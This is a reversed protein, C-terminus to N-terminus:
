LSFLYYMKKNSINNFFVRYKYAVINKGYIDLKGFSRVPFVLNILILVSLCCIINFFIFLPRTLFQSLYSNVSVLTCFFIFLYLLKAFKENLSLFLDIKYFIVDLSNKLTEILNINYNLATNANLTQTGNVYNKKRKLRALRIRSKIHVLINILKQGIPQVDRTFLKEIISSSSDPNKIIKVTRNYFLKSYLVAETFLYNLEQDISILDAYREKLKKLLIFSPLNVKGECYRTPLDSNKTSFFCYLLEFCNNHEEYECLAKLYSKM